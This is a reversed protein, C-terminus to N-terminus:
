DQHADDNEYKGLRNHGYEYLRYVTQIEDPIPGGCTWCKLEEDLFWACDHALAFQSGENRWEPCTMHVASVSPEAQVGHWIREVVSWAGDETTFRIEVDPTGTKVDSM